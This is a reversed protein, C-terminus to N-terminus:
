IYYNFSVYDEEAAMLTPGTSLWWVPLNFRYHPHCCLLAMLLIMEKFKM